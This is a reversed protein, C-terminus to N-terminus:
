WRSILKLRHRTDSGDCGRSTRLLPSSRRGLRDVEEWERGTTDDPSRRVFPVARHSGREIPRYPAQDDDCINTATMLMLCFWDRRDRFPLFLGAKSLEWTQPQHPMGALNWPLLDDIRNIPHDNIRDLVEHLYAESDLGNLKTSGILNYISAAREGGSDSGAFLYNKRGLAV